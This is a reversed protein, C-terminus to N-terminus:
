PQAGLLTPKWNRTMEIFCDDHLPLWALHKALKLRCLVFRNDKIDINKRCGYCILEAGTAEGEQLYNTM